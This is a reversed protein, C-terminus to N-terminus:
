GSCVGYSCAWKGITPQWACYGPGQTPGGDNAGSCDSDNTCDDDAGHCYYGVVGSRSGCSADVTPSCYGTAGCDSDVQCNGQVCTNGARGYPPEPAGCVCVKGSGCDGDSSCEDYTCVDGAFNGNPPLCRGNTGMTCDADSTCQGPIGSDPAGADGNIGPPRTTSCATATPRHNAPPM